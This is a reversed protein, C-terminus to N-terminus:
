VPAGARLNQIRRIGEDVVVKPKKYGYARTYSEM